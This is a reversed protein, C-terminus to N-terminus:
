KEMEIKYFRSCMVEYKNRYLLDFLRKSPQDYLKTMIESVTPKRPPHQDIYDKVMEFGTLKKSQPIIPFDYYRYLYNKSDYLNKLGYDKNKKELPTNCIIESQPYFSFALEETELFFWPIINKKDVIKYRLLAAHNATVPVASNNYTIFNGSFIVTGQDTMSAMKIHAAIQPSGCYYKEIIGKLDTELFNLIDFDFYNIKVNYIKSFQELTDLDHANLNNNFVASFTEFPVGSQIWSYLMAQSDTGGSLYLTYPPPYKKTIYQITYKAADLPRMYSHNQRVFKISLTQQDEQINAWDM